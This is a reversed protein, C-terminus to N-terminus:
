LKACGVTQVISSRVRGSSVVIPKGARRVIHIQGNRRTTNVVVSGPLANPDYGHPPFKEGTKLIVIKPAVKSSMSGTSFLSSFDGLGHM